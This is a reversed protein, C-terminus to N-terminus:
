LWWARRIEAHLSHHRFLDEHRMKYRRQYRADPRPRHKRIGSGIANLCARVAGPMASPFYNRLTSATSM